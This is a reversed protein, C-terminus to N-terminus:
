IVLGVALMECLRAYIPNLDDIPLPNEGRGIEITFGPRHFKDIFWDKFGAHSASLNPETVTYGSTKGLVNAMTLSQAPTHKGYQWYIEEGQSHFAYVRSIDFSRCLRVMNVTEPESHPTKGGWKRASPRIIGQLRELKKIESFGADFNHNIDVGRANANWRSLDGGSADLVINKFRGATEAGNLLIEVGDPNIIPVIIIGRKDLSTKINIGGLYNDKSGFYASLVDEAFKYLLLGTLWETAHFTGAYLVANTLKGIGIGYIGRSCLSKGVVFIKASRFLEKMQYIKSRQNEYCPPQSYFIDDM